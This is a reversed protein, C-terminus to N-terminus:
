SYPVWGGSLPAEARPSDDAVVPLDPRTSSRIDGGDIVLYRERGRSSLAASRVASRFRDAASAAGVRQAAWAALQEDDAVLVLAREGGSRPRLLYQGEAAKTVKYESELGDLVSM